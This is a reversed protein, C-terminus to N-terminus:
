QSSAQPGHCLVNQGLLRVPEFLVPQVLRAADEADEIMGIGRRERRESEMRELMAALFRGADDAEVPAMEVGFAAETKDAVMEGRPRHDVPQLAIHGNAMDAVRGAAVRDQAVHLREEDIEIGAAERQRMVAVEGVRQSQAFGEDLFASNALRGGVGLHYEVEDRAALLLTEDLLEDFGQELDFAGISEDPERMLLEDARAIREADPRKNDAPEALSPYQRRLSAREVDDAGLEHALDLVALDHHNGAFPDLAVAEHRFVRRLSQMKSYM